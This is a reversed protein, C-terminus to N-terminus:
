YWLGILGRMSTLNLVIVRVYIVSVFFVLEFRKCDASLNIQLSNKKIPSFYSESLSMFDIKRGNSINL